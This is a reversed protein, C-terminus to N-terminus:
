PALSLGAPEALYNRQKIKKLQEILVEIQHETHLATIAFRFGCMDEKVLPYVRFGPIVGNSILKKAEVTMEEMTGIPIYIVPQNLVNDYVIGLNDLTDTIKRVLYRIKARALEGNTTNLKLTAEVQGVTYPSVPASFLYQLCMARANEERM